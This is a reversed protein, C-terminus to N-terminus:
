PLLVREAGVKRTPFFLRLRTRAPEFFLSSDFYSVWHYTWKNSVLAPGLSRAPNLSGGTYVGQVIDVAYYSSARDRLAYPFEKIYKILINGHRPHCHRHM